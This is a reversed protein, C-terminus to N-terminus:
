LSAGGALSRGAGRGVKESVVELTRDLPALAQEWIYRSEVLSRGARSQGERYAGDTLLRTVQNAFEEPNRGVLIPGATDDLLARAPEPTAVVPVGLALSELIKYQSGAGFRLPAVSVACRAAERRVDPVNARVTVGPMRGLARVARPPNWGVVLFRVEPVSSRVLPLIERAFYIAADANPLYDLRGFFIVSNAEPPGELYSCTDLEVGNPVLVLNGAGTRERVWALDVPSSLLVANFQAPLQAEYRCVRDRDARAALWRPSHWIRPMRQYHLCISDVMDLIRPIPRFPRAYEAMRLLQVFFLDIQGREVDATLARLFEGSEYLKVQFPLRSFLGKLANWGYGAPSIRFLRKELGVPEVDGLERHTRLPSGIAYLTVEHSRLLYRLVYHARWRGGSVLPYPIRSTLYAIRV